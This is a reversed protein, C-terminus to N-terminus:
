RSKDLRVYSDGVASIWSTKPDYEGGKWKIIVSELPKGDEAFDEDEFQIIEIDEPDSVGTNSDTSSSRSEYTM